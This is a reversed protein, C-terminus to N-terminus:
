KAGKIMLDFAWIYSGNDDLGLFIPTTNPIFYVGTSNKENSRIYELCNYASTRAKDYDNHKVAVQVSNNYYSARSTSVYSNDNTYFLYIGNRPSKNTENVYVNYKTGTNGDREGINNNILTKLTDISAM